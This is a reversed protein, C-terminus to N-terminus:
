TLILNGEAVNVVAGNQKNEAIVDLVKQIDKKATAPTLGDSRNSGTAANVYYTATAKSPTPNSPATRITTSSSADVASKLAGGLKSGFSQANLVSATMMVAAFLFANKKM